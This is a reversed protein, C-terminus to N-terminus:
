LLRMSEVKICKKAVVNYGEHALQEAVEMNETGPQM